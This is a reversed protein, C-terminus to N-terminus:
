CWKAKRGVWPQALGERVLQDGVDTGGSSVRRLQRGYRDRDPGQRSLTVRGGRGVLDSLRAKAAFALDRERACAARPPMEATDINLIRVSEGDALVFTDGDIM